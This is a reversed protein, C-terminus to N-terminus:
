VSETSAELKAIRRVMLRKESDEIWELIGLKLYQKQKQLNWCNCNEPNKEDM